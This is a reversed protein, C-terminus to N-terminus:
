GFGSPELLLVSHLLWSDNVLKRSAFKGDDQLSGILAQFPFRRQADQAFAPLVYMEVAEPYATCLFAAAFETMVADSPHCAFEISYKGYVPNDDDDSQLRFLFTYRLGYEVVPILDMPPPKTNGGFPQNREPSIQKACETMPKRGMTVVTYTWYIVNKDQKSTMM